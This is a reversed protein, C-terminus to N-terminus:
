ESEELDIVFDGKLMLMELLKIRAAEKVVLYGTETELDTDNPVEVSVGSDLWVNVIM